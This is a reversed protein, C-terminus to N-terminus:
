QPNYKPNIAKILGLSKAANAQDGVIKYLNYLAIQAKEKDKKENTSIIAKNFELVARKSKGIKQNLTGSTYYYAYLDSKNPASRLLELAEAYKGQSILYPTADIYLQFLYPHSRILSVYENFALSDKAISSFYQALFVHKSEYYPSNNFAVSDIFTKPIYTDRWQNERAGSTFPWSMKLAKIRHDAYLSDVETFGWNRRYYSSPKIRKNNWNDAILRNAKMEQFFADAMLFYGDINPHLHEVMLNNGILGNTSHEEFIRKMPIVPCDYKKGLRHITENIEEPARFRIIDLDKAKYYLARAEDFKNNKELEQAQRFVDIAAPLNGSAESGFPAQDKINSVLESLIVPVHHNKAKRLVRSINVDFQHIGDNFLESNCRISKEQALCEMLTVMPQNSENKSKSIIGYILDQILQYTRLKILKLRLQKLWIHNGKKEVSGVGLTGYYENHSNYILIADPKYDLVDDIMDALSYSSTAALAVNVVEIRKNPFADQLRYYLIRSFMNGTQYPFGRATSCGMVFVRYATDPKNTLFLDNTPTTAIFNTFYRKAIDKNIETYGKYQKSDVFLSLDTGLGFFRFAIEVSCLIFLSALVLILYFVAKKSKSIM